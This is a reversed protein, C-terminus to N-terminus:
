RPPVLMEAKAGPYDAADAPREALTVHGTAEVFRRVDANTVAHRDM